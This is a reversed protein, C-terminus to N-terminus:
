IFLIALAAGACLGLTQYCRLRPEQDATLLEVERECAERVAALGKLQGELSFDGLTTGLEELLKVTRQPLGVAKHLAAQLCHVVNPSIQNELENALCSFFVALPGKAISAARSCLEPLPTLRFQLECEMFSLVQILQRLSRVQSRHSAAVGFGVAGCGAIVFVMGILKLEM